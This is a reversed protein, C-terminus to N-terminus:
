GLSVYVGVGLQLLAALLRVFLFQHCFQEVATALGPRSTTDKLRQGNAARGKNIQRV